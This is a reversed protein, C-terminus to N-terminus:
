EVYLLNILEGYSRKLQGYLILLINVRPYEASIKMDFRSASKHKRRSRSPPITGRGHFRVTSERM